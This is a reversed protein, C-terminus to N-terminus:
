AVATSLAVGITAMLAVTWAQARLEEVKVHLAGAFLLLGLMWGLLTRSFELADVETRIATAIGIQPWVLDVAMVSISAILAVVLIGIASPLRLFLYNVTGFLGALVILLSAIQLVTM